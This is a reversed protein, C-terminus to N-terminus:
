IYPNKPAKVPTVSEVALVPIEYRGRKVPEAYTGVVEVWTDAPYEAPVDTLVKVAQGDAACCFLTMRTLVLEDDSDAGVFGILSIKRDGLGEGKELVSRSGYELLDMELVGGEPLPNQTAPARTDYDVGGSDRAAAFSGLAPPAVFFIALVPLLLLWTVRPGGHHHDHGHPESETEATDDARGDPAAVATAMGLLILLIGAVLLFPALQEKVYNVYAGSWVVKTLTAGVLIMMLAQLERRV